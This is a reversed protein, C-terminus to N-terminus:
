LKTLRAFKALLTKQGFEGFEVVLKHDSALTEIRLITGAGFKPHEVREGM